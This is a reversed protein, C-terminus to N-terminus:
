PSVILEAQRSPQSADSVVYRGPTLRVLVRGRWHKEARSIQTVRTRQDGVVSEILLGASGETKDELAINLLGHDVRMQRPYVGDPLLVFRIMRVPGRESTVHAAAIAELTLNSSNANLPGRALLITFGVTLLLLLPLVLKM